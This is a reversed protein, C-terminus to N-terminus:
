CVWEAHESLRAQTNQFYLVPLRDGNIISMFLWNLRIEEDLDNM